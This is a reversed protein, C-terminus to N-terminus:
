SARSAAGHSGRLGRPRALRPRSPSTEQAMLQWCRLRVQGSGNRLVHLYFEILFLDNPPEINRTWPLTHPLPGRWTDNATSTRANEAAHAASVAAASEFGPTDKHVATVWAQIPTYAVEHAHAGWTFHDQHAHWLSQGNCRHSLTAIARRLFLGVRARSRPSDHGPAKPTVADCIISLPM